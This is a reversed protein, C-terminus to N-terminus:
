VYDRYPWMARTTDDHYGDSDAYRALDLWHQAMREGYHPSAFLRDVLNRIASSGSGHTGRNRIIDAEFQKVENPTPPLGTLDFSLRRILTRPDATPSPPLGEKELRALIFRDIDGRPWTTDSVAPLEPRRPAVFAWHESYQAGAAIWRQLKDKQAATLPKKTEPPPMIEDPDQENIRRVLESASADGPVIAESEVASDRVDLRLEAERKNADPGHCAFCHEALIPRVDRGFDVPTTSDPEGALSLASSVWVWMGWGIVLSRLFLVSSTKPPRSM